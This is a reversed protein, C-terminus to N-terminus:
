GSPWATSRIFAKAIWARSTNHWYETASLPLSIVTPADGQIQQTVSLIGLAAYSLAFHAGAKVVRIAMFRQKTRRSYLAIV